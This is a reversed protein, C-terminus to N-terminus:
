KLQAVALMSLGFPNPLGLRFTTFEFFYMRFIFNNLVSPLTFFKEQNKTEMKKVKAAVPQIIKRLFIAPILPLMHIYTARVVQWGAKNLEDCMNKRNYRKVHGMAKDWKSFLSQYSPVTIILRTETDALKKLNGLVEVPRRVHEIFDFATIYNPICQIDPIEKELDAKFVEYGRQRCISIAKENIDIGIVRYSREIFADMNGGTGCGIDLITANPMKILYQLYRAKAKFWFYDKDIAQLEEIYQTEM